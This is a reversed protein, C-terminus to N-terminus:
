WTAGQRHQRVVRITALSPDSAGTIHMGAAVGAQLFAVIPATIREGPVLVPIGPPYPTILDAAVEGIAGDLPVDWTPAFSAERPTLVADTRLARPDCPLEPVIEPRDPAAAALDTLGALLRAVSEETDGLTLLALIRRQDSLDVAIRRHTRLWRAAAFGSMGLERVDIVLKTGDFAAAGEQALVEFGLTRLGPLGMIAARAKAALDLAIGLLRTGDLMMQRRCADMSALTFVPPSTTQLTTIWTGVRAPEIRSGQLNLISSGTFGTLVKHMSAISADAGCAMASPPLSPHFSFHAGWAEDVILPIDQAHSLHALARLDSAVGFYTPSVVMVAKARPHARLTSALDEPTIGHALDAHVDHPPHVYLPHAGSLILGALVSRHVNRAVIVEDGPGAVSQLIVQNSLSSGGVLFFSREAGFADAALDEAQRLTTELDNAGGALPFDNVFGAMGLVAATEAPIGRGGKHGPITFSLTDEARYASVADLLPTRRHDQMADIIQRM